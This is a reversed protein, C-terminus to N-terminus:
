KLLFTLLWLEILQDYHGIFNVPKFKRAHSCYYNLQPPIIMQVAAVAQPSFLNKPEGGHTILLQTLMFMLVSHDDFSAASVYHYKIWNGLQHNILVPNGVVALLVSADDVTKVM